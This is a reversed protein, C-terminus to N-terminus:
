PEIEILRCSSNVTFKIATSDNEIRLEHEGYTLEITKVQEGTTEYGCPWPEFSQTLRGLKKGDVIIVPLNNEIELQYFTVKGTQIEKKKKCGVILALCAIIIIHKM